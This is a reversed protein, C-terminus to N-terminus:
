ASGAAGRMRRVWWLILRVSCWALAAGAIIVVVWRLPSEVRVIALLFIAYAIGWIERYPSERLPWGRGPGVSPRHFAAEAAARQAYFLCVALTVSALLSVVAVPMGKGQLWGLWFLLPPVVGLVLWGGWLWPSLWLRRWESAFGEVEDRTFIVERDAQRFLYGESHPEFRRRYWRELRTM